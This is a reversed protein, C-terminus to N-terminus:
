PRLGYLGSGIGYLGFAHLVLWITDANGHLITNDLRLGIAFVAVGAVLELVSVLRSKRGSRPPLADSTGGLPRM